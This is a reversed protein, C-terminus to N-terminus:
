LNSVAASSTFVSLVESDGSMAASLKSEIVSTFTITSYFFLLQYLTAM